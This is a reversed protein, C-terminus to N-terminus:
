STRPRLASTRASAERTCLFVSDATPHLFPLTTLDVDYSPSLLERDRLFNHGTSEHGMSLAMFFRLQLQPEACM